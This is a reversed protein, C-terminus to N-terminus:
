NNAQLYDQKVRRDYHYSFRFIIMFYFFIVSKQHHNINWDKRLNMTRIELFLNHKLENTIQHRRSSSSTSSTSSSSENPLDYKLFLNIAPELQFEDGITM